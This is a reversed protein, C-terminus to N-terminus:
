RIRRKHTRAYMPIPQIKHLTMARASFIVVAICAFAGASAGFVLSFPIVCAIAIFACVANVRYTISPKHM